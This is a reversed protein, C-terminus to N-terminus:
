VMMALIRLLPNAMAAAQIEELFEQQHDPLHDLPELTADFQAALISRLLAIRQSHKLRAMTQHMPRVLYSVVSM